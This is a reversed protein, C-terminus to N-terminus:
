IRTRKPCIDRFRYAFQEVAKRTKGVRGAIEATSLGEAWLRRVQEITEDPWAAVSRSNRYRPAHIVGSVSGAARAAASAEGALLEKAAQRWGELIRTVREVPMGIADAIYDPECDALLFVQRVQRDLELDEAQEGREAVCRVYYAADFLRRVYEAPRINLIAARKRLVEYQKVPIAFSIQHLNM